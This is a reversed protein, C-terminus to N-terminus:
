SKEGLAPNSAAHELVWEAIDDYVEGRNTENVLEHRAGAYLKLFIDEAGAKEYRKVAREVGKGNEGVPDKDGSVFLMPLDTRVDGKKEARSLALIIGMFDRYAGATFDFQCLPDKEYERDSGIDRSLWDHGTQNPRFQRNYSGLIIRTLLTSVYRDGKFRCTVEALTYAIRILADPQCGTGMIIVGDPGDDYVTLYRRVLFSGMSHGMLFLPVDGFKKEGYSTLRRIDKILDTRGNDKGFYGRDEPVATLGHGLHDHGFVAIGSKTMEVAFNDYRGIHEVMGHSIQIVAKIDKDPIWEICRLNSTGDSSPLYFERKYM